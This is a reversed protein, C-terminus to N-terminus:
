ILSSSSSDQVAVRCRSKQKTLVRDTSFVRGGNVDSDVFDM